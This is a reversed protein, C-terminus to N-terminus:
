FGTCGWILGILESFLVIEVIRLGTFISIQLDEKVSSCSIPHKINAIFEEIIHYSGFFIVEVTAM